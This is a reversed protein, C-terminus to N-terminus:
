VSHTVFRVTVPFTTLMCTMNRLELPEVWAEGSSRCSISELCCAEPRMVPEGPQWVQARWSNLLPAFNPGSVTHKRAAAGAGGSTSRQDGSKPSKQQLVSMLSLQFRQQGDRVLGRAFAFLSM